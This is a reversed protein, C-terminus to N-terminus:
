SETFNNITIIKTKRKKNNIFKRNQNWWPLKYKNTKIESIKKLSWSPFKKVAITEITAILTMHNQSSKSNKSAKINYIIDLDFNLINSLPAVTIVVTIVTITIINLHIKLTKLFLPFLAPAVFSSFILNSIIKNFGCFFERASGPFTGWFCCFELFEWSMWLTWICELATSVVFTSEVSKKEKKRPQFIMCSISFVHPGGVVIPFCFFNLWNLHFDILTIGIFLSSSAVNRLYILLDLFSLCDQM